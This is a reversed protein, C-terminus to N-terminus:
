DQVSPKKDKRYRHFYDVRTLNDNLEVEGHFDPHVALADLFYKKPWKRMFVTKKRGGKLCLCLRYKSVEVKEISSVLLVKKIFPNFSSITLRDDKGITFYRHLGFITMVLTVLFGGFILRTARSHEYILALSIFTPIWALSWFMVALALEPQFHYRVKGFIKIM